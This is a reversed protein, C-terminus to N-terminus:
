QQRVEEIQRRLQAELEIIQAQYAKVKEAFEQEKNQILENMQRAEALLKQTRANNKLNFITNAIAESLQKLFDTQHPEFHHLSALEIVAMAEENYLLPIIILENAVLEGLGSNIKLYDQPLQKLHIEKRRAYCQGILGEGILVKPNKIKDLECGYAAKLELFDEEEDYQDSIIYLAGQQAEIVKVLESILQNYLKQPDSYDRLISSFEALSKSIWSRREDDLRILEFAQLNNKLIEESRNLDENKQQFDNLILQNHKQAKYNSYLLFLFSSLLLVFVVVVNVFVFPYSKHSLGFQSFHANFYIYIRDFFIGAFMVMGTSLILPIFERLTFLCLPLAISAVIVFHPSVYTLPDSPEGTIKSNIDYALVILAPLVALIFRSLINIKLYNLTPLIFALGILIFFPLLNGAKAGAFSIILFIALALSLISFQNALAIRDQTASDQHPQVGIHSIKYWLQTIFKIM